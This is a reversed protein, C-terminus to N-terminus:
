AVGVVERQRPLKPADGGFSNPSTILSIGHERRGLIATRCFTRNESSGGSKEWALALKQPKLPEISSKM